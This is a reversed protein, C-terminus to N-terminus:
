QFLCANTYKETPFSATAMVYLPKKTSEEIGISVSRGWPSFAGLGLDNRLIGFEVMNNNFGSPDHGSDRLFTVVREAIKQYRGGDGQVERQVFGQEVKKFETNNLKNGPLNVSFSLMYSGPQTSTGATPSSTTQDAGKELDLITVKCEKGDMDKGSFTKPVPQATMVESANNNRVQCGGLSLAVVALTQHWRSHM